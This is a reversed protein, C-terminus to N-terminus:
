LLLNLTYACFHLGGGGGGRPLWRVRGYQPQTGAQHPWIHTLKPGNGNKGYIAWLNLEHRVRPRFQSTPAPRCVSSHTRRARQHNSCDPLWVSRHRLFLNRCDSSSHLAQSVSIPPPPPNCSNQASNVFSSFENLLKVVIIHSAEPFQASDSQNIELM